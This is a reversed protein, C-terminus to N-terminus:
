QELLTLIAKYKDKVMARAEPLTIKIWGREVKNKLWSRIEDLEKKDLAGTYIFNLCNTIHAMADACAVIQEEMSERKYDKSGRHHRICKLILELKEKSIKGKLMKEAIKAGLIEHEHHINTELYHIDHLLAALEVVQRDADYITALRLAFTRVPIMHEEYINKHRYKEKCAKEVYKEVNDLIKEYEMKICGSCINDGM